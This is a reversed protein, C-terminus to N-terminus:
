HSPLWRKVNPLPSRRFAFRARTQPQQLTLTGSAQETERPHVNSILGLTRYAESRRRWPREHVAAAAPVPLLFTCLM